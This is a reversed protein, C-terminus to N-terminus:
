GLGRTQKSVSRASQMMGDIYQFQNRAVEQGDLDTVITMYIPAQEPITLDLNNLVSQETHRSTAINSPDTQPVAYSALTSSAKAVAKKMREIGIALGEGTFEGYETTLKSPSNIKLVNKITDGVGSAISSVKDWVASAMSGIGNILGQIIDRGTQRLNIGKFFSMVGNWISTVSSKANGFISKISSLMNNFNTRVGTWIGRAVGLVTQSLANWVSAGFTRLMTFINSGQTYLNRFFNLVGNVMGSVIGQASTTLTRFLNVIGTSLNKILTVGSKLLNTLLTKIGGVFNLTMLGIILDVAGGLISKVGEWLLSWDATFLGTFVQVIGMIISLAGDIVNKVAAWVTEVIFLIAPMVFDVVAMIGNFVNEVAQLFQTGHQSWFATITAIKEQIFTSVAEFVFLAVERIRNFVGTMGTRFTESNNWLAVLAAGFAVAGAIALAIPASIGAVIPIIASISSALIGLVAIVPGIAIAIGGIIVMLRQIPPSLNGFWSAANELLSSIRPLWDEAMEIIVNGLPVLSLQAQRFLKQIREGFNDQLAAAARETTGELGEISDSAGAMAFIVKERLDEYQTGFLATSLNNRETADEVEMLKGVIEQFAKNGEEGGKSIKSVYKDANLGMSEYAEVTAKDLAGMRLHSEKIADGVKDLQWAGADFGAKLTNAMQEASYGMEAFQPSYERLTDLWEGTYDMGNQFGWTIIDMSSESEEGFDKMLQGATRTSENVDAEFREGLVYAYETIKSLDADNLDGVNQRVKVMSDSVEELSEGWGNVFVDQAVGALEEAEKKTVGLGAQIRGTSKEVNDAALVAAAGFAGLAPTVTTTLTAGIEQMKQGAASLSESARRAVDTQEELAANSERINNELRAEHLELRNLQTTLRVVETSNAGYIQRARELQERAAQVQRNVIAQQQEFYQIRSTLIEVSSATGKMREQQLLFEGRLQTSEATMEKMARTFERNFVKFTVTTEAM